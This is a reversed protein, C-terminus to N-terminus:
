EWSSRVWDRDHFSSRPRAANKRLKHPNPESVSVSSKHLQAPYAAPKAACADATTCRRLHRSIRSVILRVHLRPYWPGAGIPLYMSALLQEIRPRLQSNLPKNSASYVTSKVCFIDWPGQVYRRLELGQFFARRCAFCELPIGWTNVRSIGIEWINWRSDKRSVPGTQPLFHGGSPLDMAGVAPPIRWFSSVAGLAIGPHYVSVYQISWMCLLLAM